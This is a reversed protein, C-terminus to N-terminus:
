KTNPKGIQPVEDLAADWVAYAAAVAAISERESKLLRVNRPEVDIPMGDNVDIRPAVPYGESDVGRYWNRLKEFPGM